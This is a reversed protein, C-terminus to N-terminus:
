RAQHVIANNIAEVIRAVFAQDSSSLARAEGSATTIVVHSQRGLFGWAVAGVIVVGGLYPSVLAVFLGVAAGVKVGTRRVPDRSGRVSTVNRLAYTQGGTIIRASTVRVGAGDFFVHEAPVGPAPPAVLVAAVPDM